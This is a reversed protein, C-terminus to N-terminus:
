LGMIGGNAPPYPLGTVPNIPVPTFLPQSNQTPQVTEWSALQPQPAYQQAIQQPVPANYPVQVPQAQAYAQHAVPPQYTAMFASSDAFDQEASSRSGLPEGDRLKQVNSLGCGIGKKGNSSYPFFTVSVRGYMGSYIQTQDLIAQLNGDVIGVPDKSSATFVWCGKCEEGFPMGDSPRGVDGDHVCVALIPPRQGGFKTAVGYAIANNIAADINRKTIVDTKPVLITSSYKPEQGVNAYPKCLHAYSFRVEGTTVKTNAM